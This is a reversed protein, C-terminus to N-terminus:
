DMYGNKRSRVCTIWLTYRWGNRLTRSLPQIDLSLHEGPLLSPDDITNSKYHKARKISTRDCAECVLKRKGAITIHQQKFVAEMTKEGAHCLRSHLQHWTISQKTKPAPLFLTTTGSPKDLVPLRGGGPFSGTAIVRNKPVAVRGEVLMLKHEGHEDLTVLTSTSNKELLRKSSLINFKCKSEPPLRLARTITLNTNSRNADVASIKYAVTERITAPQDNVGYLSKHTTLPNKAIYSQTHAALHDESCTDVLTPPDTGPTGDPDASILSFSNSLHSIFTYNRKSHTQKKKTYKPCERPTHSSLSKCDPRRCPQTCVKIHHGPARCNYCEFVAWKPKNKSKTNAKTHSHNAIFSTHTEDDDDRHSSPLNSLNNIAVRSEYEQVLYEYCSQYDRWKSNMADLMDQKFKNSYKNTPLYRILHLAKQAESIDAHRKRLVAYKMDLKEKIKHVTDKNGVVIGTGKNLADILAAASLPADKSLLADLAFLVTYPLADHPLQALAIARNLLSTDVSAHLLQHVSLIDDEIKRKVYTTLALLSAEVARLEASDGTPKRPSSDDEMKVKSEVLERKRNLLTALDIKGNENDSFFLSELDDELKESKGEETKKTQRPEIYFKSIPTVTSIQRIGFVNFKRMFNRLLDDKKSSSLIYLQKRITLERKLQEEWNTFDTNTTLKRLSLLPTAAKDTKYSMVQKLDPSDFDM